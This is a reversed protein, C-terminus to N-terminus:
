LWINLMDIYFSFQKQTGSTWNNLIKTVSKGNVLIPITDKNM